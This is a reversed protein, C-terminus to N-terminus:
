LNKSHRFKEIIEVFGHPINFCCMWHSTISAIKSCVQCLLGKKIDELEWISPALSRTLREYIDPLKSLERLKAIQLYLWILCYSFYVIVTFNPPMLDLSIQQCLFQHRYVWSCCRSWWIPWFPIVCLSKYCGLSSWNCPLMPLVAVMFSYLYSCLFDSLIWNNVQAENTADSADGEHFSAYTDSEKNREM